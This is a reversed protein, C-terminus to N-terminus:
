LGFACLLLMVGIGCFMSLWCGVFKLVFCAFMCVCLFGIGFCCCWGLVVLGCFVWWFLLALLSSIGLINVVRGLLVCWGFWLVSYAVFFLWLCLAESLM